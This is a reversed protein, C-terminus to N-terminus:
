NINYIIRKMLCRNTTFCIDKRIIESLNHSKSQTLSNHPKRYKTGGETTIDQNRDMNIEVIDIEFMNIRNRSKTESNTCFVICSIDGSVGIPDLQGSLQTVVGQLSRLIEEQRQLQAQVDTLQQTM